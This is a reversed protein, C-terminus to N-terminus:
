RNSVRINGSSALCAELFSGVEHADINARPGDLDTPWGPPRAVTPLWQRHRGTEPSCM